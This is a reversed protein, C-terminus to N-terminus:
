IEIMESLLGDSQYHLIFHHDYDIVLNQQHLERILLNQVLLIIRSFYLGINNSQM